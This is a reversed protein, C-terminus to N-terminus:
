ISLASLSMLVIWRLGAQRTLGVEFTNIECNHLMTRMGPITIPPEVRGHDSTRTITIVTLMSRITRQAPTFRGM